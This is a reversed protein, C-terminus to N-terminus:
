NSEGTHRADLGDIWRVSLRPSGELAVTSRGPRRSKAGGPLGRCLLVARTGSGRRAIHGPRRAVRNLGRSVRDAILRAVAACCSQDASLVQGLFVWLTVLPTFIRDNWCVGITELAQSFCDTSLIDAFPLQGEQLFQRRVFAVQQRLRGQRSLRM